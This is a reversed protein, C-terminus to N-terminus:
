GSNDVELDPLQQAGAFAIAPQQPQAFHARLKRYAWRPVIWYWFYVGFFSAMLGSTQYIIPNAHWGTSVELLAGVITLAVWAFFAYKIFKGM